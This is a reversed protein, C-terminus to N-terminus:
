RRCALGAGGHAEAITLGPWGLEAIESWLTPCFGAGEEGIRRVESLPCREALCKNVENRLLDQEETFGFNM